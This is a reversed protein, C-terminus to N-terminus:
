LLSAQYVRRMWTVLTLILLSLDPQYCTAKIQHSSFLM